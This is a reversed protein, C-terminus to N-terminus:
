INGCLRCYELNFFQPMEWAPMKVSGKTSGREPKMQRKLQDNVVRLSSFFGLLISPVFVGRYNVEMLYLFSQASFLYETETFLMEFYFGVHSEEERWVEEGRRTPHCFYHSSAQSQHIM